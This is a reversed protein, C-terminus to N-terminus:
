CLASLAAPEPVAQPESHATAHVVVTEVGACACDRRLRKSRRLLREEAVLADYGASQILRRLERETHLGLVMTTVPIEIPVFEAARALLRGARVEADEAPPIYAVFAGCWIFTPYPEYTKVLTLRAHERDALAVAAFFTSWLRDPQDELVGVVNRMSM